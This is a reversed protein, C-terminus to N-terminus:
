KDSFMEDTKKLFKIVAESNKVYPKEYIALQSDSLMMKVLVDFGWPYPPPTSARELIIRVLIEDCKLEGNTSPPNRLINLAVRIFFLTARCPYRVMDVLANLFLVAADPRLKRAIDCMVINLQLNNFESVMIQQASIQPLLTNTAYLIFSSMVMHSCRKELEKIFDQSVEANDKLISDFKLAEVINRSPKPMYTFDDIGPTKLIQKPNLPQLKATSPSANLIINHLQVFTPPIISVFEPAFSSMFDPYDHSLVLIFRLLSKYLIDFVEKVHIDSSYIMSAAFDSLVTAMKDWGKNDKISGNELLKQVLRKDCAIQIWAFSFSPMKLPRLSHLLDAFKMILNKDDCISSLITSITEYYNNTDYKLVMANGEVLYVISDSIAQWNKDLTKTSKLGKFLRIVYDTPAKYFFVVFFDRGLITKSCFENINSTIRAEKEANSELSPIIVPNANQLNELNELSDINDHNTPSEHFRKGEIATKFSEFLSIATSSSDNGLDELPDFTSMSQLKSEPSLVNLPIDLEALVKSLSEASERQQASVSELMTLPTSVVLTLSSILDTPKIIHQQVLTYDLFRIAFVFLRYNFPQKNISTFFFQDLQQTTILENEIMSVLLSISPISNRLWGVVYPQAKIVFAKPVSSVVKKLFNGYVRDNFAHNVKAMYKMMAKIISLFEEFVPNIPPCSSIIFSNQSEDTFGDQSQSIGATILKTITVFFKEFKESSRITKDATEPPSIEAPNLPLEALDEYIQRHEATLGQEIPTLGSPLRLYNKKLPDYYRSGQVRKNEENKEIVVQVQKFSLIQVVEQLMQGIWTNNAQVCLNIWETDTSGFEHQVQHCILRQLKQFATVLTLGASLQKTLVAATELMLDVNNCLAFDKLIIGTATSQAVKSLSTGESKLFLLVGSTIAARMKDRNQSLTSDQQQQPNQIDQKQQNTHPPDPIVICQAALTSFVTEDFSVVREIDSPSLIYNLKFPTAVFDFNGQRVDPILDILNLQCPSVEFKKLIKFVDNKISLKLLDTMGISALVQLIGSIYPNPPQFIPSAVNLIEYVFPIVGFLKGQSFAYLLLQKIDLFRGPITRNVALTLQGILKGLISLRRRAFSGDITAFQPNTILQISEFISAQIVIKSFQNATLLSPLIKDLLKPHDQITSVLHLALWDIYPEYLNIISTILNPDNPIQQILKCVRPLPTPLKEFKLLNPHLTLVTAKTLHIPVSLNSSLKRIREYLPLNRLLPQKLLTFVFEPQKALKSVCIELAVTAFITMPSNSSFGTVFSSFLHKIEQENFLNEHIMHGVLEGLKVIVNNTHQDIYKMELLLYHIMSNFLPPSSGRLQHFIQVFESVSIENSIFKSFYDSATAKVESTHISPLMDSFAFSQEMLKSSKCISYVSNVLLKTKDPLSDFISWFYSFLTDLPKKLLAPSSVSSNLVLNKVFELFTDYAAISFRKPLTPMFSSLDILGRQSAQFALDIVFNIDNCGLLDILHGKLSDIIFNLKNPNTNYYLIFLKNCFESNTKWLIDLIVNNNRLQIIPSLFNIATRNFIDINEPNPIQSYTLLIISSFDNTALNLMQSVDLYFNTSLKLICEVFDICEWCKNPVDPPEYGYLNTMRCDNFVFDPVKNNTLHKLFKLQLPKNEWEMVFPRGNLPQGQLLSQLLNFTMTCGEPDLTKVNMLDLSSSISTIDVNRETFSDRFLDVIRGKQTDELRSFYSRFSCEQSSVALIFSAAHKSNFEPFFDFLRKLQTKTTLSRTDSELVADYLSVNIKMDFLANDKPEIKKVGNFYLQTLNLNDFKIGKMNLQLIDYLVTEDIDKYMEPTITPLIKTSLFLKSIKQFKSSQCSLTFLIASSSPPLTQLLNVPLNQLSDFFSVVQSRFKPSRQFRLSIAAIYERVVEKHFNTSNADQLIQFSISLVQPLCNLDFIELITLLYEINLQKDIPEKDQRLIKQAALFGISFSSPAGIHKASKM